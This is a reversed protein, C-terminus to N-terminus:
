NLVGSQWQYPLNAASQTVAHSYGHAVIDLSKTFDDFIVGDGDGFYWKATRPDWFANMFGPIMGDNDDWHVTSVLYFGKDDSSNRGYVSSSFALVQGLYDWTRKAGEDTSAQQEGIDRITIDGSQEDTQHADRVVRYLHEPM